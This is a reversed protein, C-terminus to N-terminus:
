FLRPGTPDARTPDWGEGTGEEPSASGAEGQDRGHDSHDRSQDGEDSGHDGHDSEDGERALHRPTWHRGNPRGQQRERQREQEQRDLEEEFESVRDLLDLVAAPDGGLTCKLVLEACRVAQADVAGTLARKALRRVIRRLVEPPVALKVSDAYGKLRASKRPM